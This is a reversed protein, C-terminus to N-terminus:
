THLAGPWQLLDAPRCVFILQDGEKWVGVKGGGGGCEERYMTAMPINELGLDPLPM